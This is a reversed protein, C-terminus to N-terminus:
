KEHDSELPAAHAAIVIVSTNPSNAPGDLVLDVMQGVSFGRFNKDAPANTKIKYGRHDVEIRGATPTATIGGSITTGLPRSAWSNASLLALLASGTITVLSFKRLIM